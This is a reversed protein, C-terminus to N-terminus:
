GRNFCRTNILRSCTSDGEEEEEEEETCAIIFANGITDLTYRQGRLLSVFALPISRDILIIANCCAFFGKVPPFSVITVATWRIPDLFSRSSSISDCLSRSTENRWGITEIWLYEVWKFQSEIVRM